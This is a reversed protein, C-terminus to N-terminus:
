APRARPGDDPAGNPELFDRAMSSYKADPRIAEELLSKAQEVWDKDLKEGPKLAKRLVELIMMWHKRDKVLDSRNLALVRVTERGRETLPVVVSGRFRVHQRPEESAPDILLPSEADLDDRHSRARTKPDSLPFLTGKHESNCSYCGVLLNEWSYALWYYGPYERRQCRKQQVAGKPRFHDVAGPYNARFKSECYCCKEHQANLLTNKVSDDAFISRKFEFTRSRSRYEDPYLDYSECDLRRKQEGANRLINPARKPRKIGIM